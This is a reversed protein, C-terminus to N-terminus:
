TQSRQRAIERRRPNLRYNRRGWWEFLAFSRFELPVPALWPQCGEAEPPVALTRRAPDLKVTAVISGPEGGLEALVRADSDAIHSFGPFSSRATPLIGPMPSHWAGAKNAMAAPIGLMAAYRAAGDCFSAHYAALRREGCFINKPLSPASIPLLLLDPQGDIIRDVVCRLSADYCIAVGIRGIDTEIVQAGSAPAFVFTELSCPHDKGVRGVIEGAPSALAFTNFFDDGRAELYTGGLFVGHQRAVDTLWREHRGGRPSATPWASEDFRFPNAFMEPLLVLQAGQAAVEAVSEALHAFMPDPCDIAADPQIVALTIQQASM